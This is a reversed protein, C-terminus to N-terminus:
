LEEGGVTLVTKVVTTEVPEGVVVRNLKVTKAPKVIQYFEAEVGHAILKQMGELDVVRYNGNGRDVLFAM